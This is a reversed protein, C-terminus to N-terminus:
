AELEKFLMSTKRRYIGIGALMAGLLTSILGPILGLYFDAPTIRARLVSPMMVSAGDMLGSIDIGYTQLLWAFFIGFTTGLFTGALGIGIAEAILTFYIHRKEEGMALRVGFEGYRRLGGLLGANWLVLAMAFIFLSSLIAAWSKSLKVYSGMNGQEGLSKMVPSFESLNLAYQANFEKSMAMADDDDYFGTPFYGTIESAADEMDLLMGADRLDIIAFGRDISEVGFHITGTLKFNYFSISGYMTSTIMTLPDGPNIGLKESLLESLLIEGPIEIMDGRVLSKRLDLRTIERSKEGLLDVAMGVVPGQTLTLGHEDAVDALAGFRIRPTWEIKPYLKSLQEILDATGTIALDNPLQSANDAFGRTMVKIHGNTFRANIEITDGMIGNIYAHAFVTLMVGTTVVMVPLLSRGKDRWLGTLLFRIM